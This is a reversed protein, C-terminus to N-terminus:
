LGTVTWPVGAKATTEITLVLPNSDLKGVLQKLKQQISAPSPNLPFLTTTTGVYPEMHLVVRVRRARRALQAFERESAEAKDSCAAAELGTWSDLAKSAVMAPLAILNKDGPEGRIARFDKAEVLWCYPPITTQRIAVADVAKMGAAPGFRRYHLWDDYKTALHNGHFSFALNDVVLTAM